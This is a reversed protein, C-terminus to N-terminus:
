TIIKLNIQTGKGLESWIALEGNIEVARERMNKHGIGPKITKSDFGVGDDAISIQLLGEERTIRICVSKAEAYKQINHLAEQLIRYVQMKVVSHVNNWDIKEDAVLKFQLQSHGKAAEMLNTVMLTFDSVDAFLNQSLDHSIKRVEKEVNQIEDIHELCRAITEPDTNKGLVFLNLRIATLKGMIGDHLEKSIRRQEIQKGEEIKQQQELMLQYIEANALQQQQLYRLERNKARQLRSVYFLIIIVIFFLSSGLIMWRQTSIKEKEAEATNKENTIEDTEFEIRAFKNRTAREVNQLSDNLTIYRKNYASNNRPDIKSLLELAKLEDEFVKNSHALIRVEDAHRKAAISDKKSLFYESLYLKSTLQVPINQLSDGIKLTENFLDLCHNDGLKFKSYAKNNTLYCFIVPEIKRYNEFSLASDAYKLADKYNGNKQSIKGIYNYPQAKLSFYQPDKKLDETKAIAKKYYEVAKELDNIGGLSNGITIYSDYIIRHNSNKLAFRLANVAAIESGSYDKNIFLLNAKNESIEEYYFKEKSRKSIKEAKSFHFFASDNSFNILNYVGLGYNAKVGAYDNKTEVSFKLLKNNITVYKDYDELYYYINALRLHDKVNLFTNPQRLIYDYIINSSAIRQGKRLGKNEAILFLSDM